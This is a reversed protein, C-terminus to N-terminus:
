INIAALLIQQTAQMKADSARTRAPLQTWISNECKPLCVKINELTLHRKILAKRQDTSVRHLCLKNAVDAIEDNM